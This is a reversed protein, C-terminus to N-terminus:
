MLGHREERRHRGEEEATPGHGPEDWGAKAGSLGRLAVAGLIGPAWVTHGEARGCKLHSVSGEHLIWICTAEDGQLNSTPLSPKCYEKPCLPGLSHLPLSSVDM